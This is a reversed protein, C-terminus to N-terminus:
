IYFCKRIIFKITKDKIIKLSKNETSEKVQEIVKSIKRPKDKTKYTTKGVNTKTV